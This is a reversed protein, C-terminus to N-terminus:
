GHTERRQEQEFGGQNDGERKVYMHVPCTGSARRPKAFVIKVANWRVKESRVLLELRLACHDGAGVPILQEDCITEGSEVWDHEEFVSRIGQETWEMPQGGIPKHPTETSYIRLASGEHVIPVQALGVNKLTLVTVIMAVPGDHVVEATIAPELRRWFTRGRAFKFYAWLGGVLIALARLLIEIDKLARGYESSYGLGVLGNLMGFFVLGILIIAGIGFAITKANRLM